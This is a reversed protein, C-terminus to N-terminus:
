KWALDCGDPIPLLQTRVGTDCHVYTFWTEDGIYAYQLDTAQACIEYDNAIGECDMWLSDGCTPDIGDDGAMCGLLLAALLMVLLLALQNRNAM